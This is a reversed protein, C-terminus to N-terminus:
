GRRVMERVEAPTDGSVEEVYGIDARQLAEKEVADRAAATGQHHGKSQFEVAHLPRFDGDVILLDIRKSNIAFCADEDASALIDGGKSWGRYFRM